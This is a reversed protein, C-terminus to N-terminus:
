FFFPFLKHMNQPSPPQHDASVWLLIHAHPLGHKQNEIAYVCAVQHGLISKLHNLLLSLKRHFVRVVLHPRDNPAQGPLLASWIEQWNPNVTVTIFYSAPGFERAIAMSDQYLQSMHRDSGTFSSPLVICHGLQNTTSLDDNQLADALGQYLEAQITHQHTQLWRLNLQEAAAWCDVVLQQLLRGGHIITTPEWEQVGNPEHM